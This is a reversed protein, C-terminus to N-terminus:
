RAVGPARRDELERQWDVQSRLGSAMDVTPSYGLEARARSIDAATHRVDGREAAVRRVRIQGVIESITQIVENMRTRTGGGVNYIAGPTGREAAAVIGTITDTVFTFDRTQDGSGYLVFEHGALGAAILRNLAMDPRQRPGYVTFLRLSVTKLGFAKWYVYSLHEGLAKTAGYPSLPRLVSEERTPLSEPDGYVSSSSTFVLRELKANKAAELLRQLLTVNLQTYLDFGEAWGARVGAQAALHFVVDVDALLEPLDIQLLDDELYSCGPRRAWAAANMRKVKPDYYPTLSDVGVVRWGM